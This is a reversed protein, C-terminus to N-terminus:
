RWEIVSGMERAYEDHWLKALAQVHRRMREEAKAPDKELIAQAIKDHVRVTRIRDAREAFLPGLRNREISILANAYLDLVPNDSGANMAAHFEESARSWVDAPADLAEWGKKAAERLREASEPTIRQAFLRALAPEVVLRAEILQHFTAGLRHLYVTTTQGYDSASLETVVPGGRPGSKIRILGHTELIRLAERLSARGVGFSALMEAEAPLRAGAELRGDVIARLIRRALIDPIKDTRDLNLWADQRGSGSTPSTESTAM